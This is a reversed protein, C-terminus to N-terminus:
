DKSPTGLRVFPGHTSKKLKFYRDELIERDVKGCLKYPTVFGKPDNIYSADPLVLNIM